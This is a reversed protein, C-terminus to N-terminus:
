RPHSGAKPPNAETDSEPEVGSRHEGLLQGAEDPSDGDSDKDEESEQVNSGVFILIVLGVVISADAINFTPWRTNGIGIDIWDIVKGIRIRDVLNGVAGALISFLSIQLALRRNRSLFIYVLVVATAISAVIIYFNNGGFRTSFAGGPNLIYTIQLLGGIVRIQGHFRLVQQVWLKSLQDVVLLIAFLIVGYKPFRM